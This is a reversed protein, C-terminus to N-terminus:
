ATARRRLRREVGARYLAQHRSDSPCIHPPVHVLRQILAHVPRPLVAPQAVDLLRLAQQQLQHRRLRRDQLAELDDLGGAQRLPDEAPDPALVDGRTELAEQLVVVDGEAARRDPGHVRVAEHRPPRTPQRPAVLHRLDQGGPREAPVGLHARVLLPSGRAGVVGPALGRAPGSCPALRTAVQMHRLGVVIVATQDDVPDRGRGAPHPLLVHGDVDRRHRRQVDRGVGAQVGRDRGRQRVNQGVVLVQALGLLATRM